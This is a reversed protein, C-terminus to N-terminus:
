DELGRFDAFLKVKDILLASRLSLDIQDGLGVPKNHFAANNLETKIKAALQDREATVQGIDKLYNAYVKDNATISRNSWVLSARGLDGKPANLQKFITALGVFEERGKKIGSPLADENMFEAIVRGEHVYDDTLGVLAMMTPRIDSHDSFIQDFRGLHRVGPGVMGVWTQTIDRQNDGHNWAFGPAECVITTPVSCGSNNGNEFFYNENAFMTLTPTRAPSATVMHLLKM